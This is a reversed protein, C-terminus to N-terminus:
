LDDIFKGHRDHSQKNARKLTNLNKQYQKHGNLHPNRKLDKGTKQYAAKKIDDNRKNYASDNAYRAVSKILTKILSM